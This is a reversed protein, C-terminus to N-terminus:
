FESRVSFHFEPEHADASPGTRLPWAYDLESSLTRFLQVRAGVGAGWLSFEDEQDATAERLSVRGVDVFSLLEFNNLGKFGFLPALPPSHLELQVAAGQDGIAESQLYGRVSETGGIGFQEGSVLPQDSVQTSLRGVLSLGAFLPQTRSAEFKLTTFNASSRQRAAEFSLAEAGSGRLGHTLTLALESAQGLQAAYEISLPWYNLPAPPIRSSGLMILENSRKADLGLTLTQSYTEGAPLALIGRLGVASGKGIVNTGGLAAVDSDSDYGYLVLSWPTDYLPAYYSGSYVQANATDQPATFWTASISHGRQWLNAYRLSVSSRLERTNPGHQNTLTVDGHLPLSDVVKLDVDVTQPLRGPRLLPTVQRDPVRNLEALQTQARNFDPVEGEALAPVAERIDLPSFWRAGDVRLRGVRTETVQLHVIGGRVQQQPIEIAVSQLGRAQYAKELAGRAAQVDALKRGPGLFPYVARQIDIPKLLTNGDVVLGNLDFLREAPADDAAQVAGGVAFAGLLLM